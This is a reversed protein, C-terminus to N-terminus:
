AHYFAGLFKKMAERKHRYFTSKSYISEWWNHYGQFFFENNILNKEADNLSDFAKTVKETYQAYADADGLDFEALYDLDQTTQIRRAVFFRDAISIVMESLDKFSKMKLSEMFLGGILWYTLFDLNTGFFHM